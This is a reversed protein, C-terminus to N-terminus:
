GKKPTRRDGTMAAAAMDREDTLTMAFAKRSRVTRMPYRRCPRHPGVREGMRRVGTGFRKGAPAAASPVIGPPAMTSHPITFRM